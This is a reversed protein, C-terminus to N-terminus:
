MPGSIKNILNSNLPDEFNANMKFEVLNKFDSRAQSFKFYKEHRNKVKWEKHLREKKWCLDFVESDSWPPQFEDAIVM